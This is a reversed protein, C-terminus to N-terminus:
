GEHILSLKGMIKRNLAGKLLQIFIIDLSFLRMCKHLATSPHTWPLQM